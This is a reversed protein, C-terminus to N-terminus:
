KKAKQFMTAAMKMGAAQMTRQNELHKGYAALQDPRLFATAKQLLQKDYETQEEFHKAVREENFMETPDAGPEPNNFDTTLKFGARLDKMAEMLQKEQGANLANDTGAVQDKFQNANMRDPLSKEYDKYAAYDDGLFKKLEEDVADTEAKIQKGLDKRKEADVSEDFMAMGMDTGVMSKKELLEKVYTAQEPPLNLQKFFAAYNREIMPGMVAKHQAKIMERMQPDKFLGALGSSNTKSSALSQELDAVQRSQTA